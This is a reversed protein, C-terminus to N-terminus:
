NTTVTVNISEGIACKNCDLTILQVSHFCFYCIKSYRLKVFNSHFCSFTGLSLLIATFVHFVDMGSITVWPFVVNQLDGRM